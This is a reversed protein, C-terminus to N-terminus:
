KLRRDPQPKAPSELILKLKNGNPDVFEKNFMINAEKDMINAKEYLKLGAFIISFFVFIFSIIIFKYSSRLLVAKGINIKKSNDIGKKFNTETISKYIDIVNAKQFYEIMEKNIPISQVERVSFVRFTQIWSIALLIAFLGFSLLGLYDVCIKPPIYLSLYSSSVLGLIGLLLSLVSFYRSAKEDIRSSRAIEEEFAYKALDYLEKHKQLEPLDSMVQFQIEFLCGCYLFIRHYALCLQYM